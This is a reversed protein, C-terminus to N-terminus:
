YFLYYLVDFFLEGVDFVDSLITFNPITGKKASFKPSDGIKKNM